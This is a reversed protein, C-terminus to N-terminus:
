NDPQKRKRSMRRKKKPAKDAKEAAELAKKEDYDKILKSGYEISSPKIISSKTDIRTGKISSEIKLAGKPPLSPESRINAPLSDTDVVTIKPQMKPTPSLHWLSGNEKDAFFLGRADTVM